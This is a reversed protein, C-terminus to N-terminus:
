STSNPPPHEGSVVAEVINPSVPQEVLPIQALAAEIEGMATKVKSLADQCEDWNRYHINLSKQTHFHLCLYPRGFCNTSISVSSLSPVHIM